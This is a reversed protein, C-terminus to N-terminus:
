ALIETKIGPFARCYHVKISWLAVSNHHGQKCLSGVDHQEDIPGEPAKQFTELKLFGSSM